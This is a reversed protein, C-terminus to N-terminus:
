IKSYLLLFIQRRKEKILKTARGFRANVSMLVFVSFQITRDFQKM